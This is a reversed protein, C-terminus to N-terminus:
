LKSVTNSGSNAVWINAGYFALSRPESGAAFQSGSQNAGFWRLIAIRQNFDVDKATAPVAPQSFILATLTVASLFLNKVTLKQKQMTTGGQIITKLREHIIAIIEKEAINVETM